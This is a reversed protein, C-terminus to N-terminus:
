AMKVSNRFDVTRIFPPPTGRYVDTFMEDKELEKANKAFEVTNDCAIRIEKDIQKLQAQDVWGKQLLLNKM